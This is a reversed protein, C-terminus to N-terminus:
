FNHVYGWDRERDMNWSFLRESYIAHALAPSTNNGSLLGNSVKHFGEVAQTGRFCILVDYPQNGAGTRRVSLWPRKNSPDAYTMM